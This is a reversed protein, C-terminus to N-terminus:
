SQKRVRRHALVLGAGALKTEGNRPEDGLLEALYADEDVHLRELEISEEGVDLASIILEPRHLRRRDDFGVHKVCVKM